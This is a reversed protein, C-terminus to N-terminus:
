RALHQGYRGFESLMYQPGVKLKFGVCIPYGDNLLHRMTTPTVTNHLGSKVTPDLPPLILAIIIANAGM